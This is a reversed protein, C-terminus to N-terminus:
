PTKPVLEIHNIELGADEQITLAYIDTLEPGDPSTSFQPQLPRFDSLPLEIEWTQGAPGGGDTAFGRDDGVARGGRAPVGASRWRRRPRTGGTQRSRRPLAFSTRAAFRDFEHPIEMELHPCAKPAHVARLRRPSRCDAAAKARAPIMSFRWPSACDLVQRVSSANM